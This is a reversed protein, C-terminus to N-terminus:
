APAAPALKTRKSPSPDEAEAVQVTDSRPPGDTVNGASTSESDGIHHAWDSISLLCSAGHCSLSILGLQERHQKTQEAPSTWAHQLQKNLASATSRPGHPRHGEGPRM